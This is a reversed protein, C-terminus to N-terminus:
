AEKPNEITYCKKGKQVLIELTIAPLTVCDRSSCTIFYCETYSAVFIAVIVITSLHPHHDNNKSSCPLFQLLTFLEVSSQEKSCLSQPLLLCKLSYDGEKRKKMRKGIFCGNVTEYSTEEKGGHSSTSSSSGAFRNSMLYFSFLSLLLYLCM